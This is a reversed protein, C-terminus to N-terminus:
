WKMKNNNLTNGFPYLLLSLAMLCLLFNNKNPVQWFCGSAIEDAEGMKGHASGSV